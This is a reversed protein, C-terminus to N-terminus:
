ESIEFLERIDDWTLHNAPDGHDQMIAAFMAKKRNQLKILKEEVTGVTVLKYVLVQKQQGIRHVRDTAQDEAMPNWWPDTHIVIDAATLNIGVGGAKLSILFVPIEPTNNFCNIREMRDSTSGDLYVYNIRSEALQARILKLMRVFQSFVVIKHGGGIAENIIEMLDDIKGSDAEPGIDPIALSPHDCLQRLKTLASLVNFRSKELGVNAVSNIIDQKVQKLITRYVDEQLQSMLVNHVTIIKPPLEPLVAVKERRLIFPTIKKKLVALSTQCGSKKLPEVYTATFQEQGELYGPMLFDFLSWLDELRNEVPTGTLVLRFAAKIKKCERARQTQRNKIHHAEDLICYHFSYDQLSDIDNVIIDYTTIIMAQDHFSSRFNKRSDPTGHYILYATGPYFKEIEAAWNYLLSRPCVILSPGQQPLSKLLTLVQITKGLGMDDALIGGFRYKHLFHLWHYGERQYPRLEGQLNEPLPCAEVPSASCIDATFQNYISNGQVVIGHEQLLQQLFILNYSLRRGTGSEGAISAFANEMLDMKSSEGVFFWQGGAQIFNGDATRRLMSMIQQHTYTAGGLNYYIEFDFWDISDEVAIDIYPELKLPTIKFETFGSDTTVRWEEPLQGIGNLMFKLLSGQEQIVWEGTSFEFKNKQMFHLLEKLPQRNVTLWHRPDTVSREYASEGDLLERCNQGQYTQGALKVTPQCSLRNLNQQYSFRLNIEPQELILQHAQFDPALELRMNQALRPLIEFLVEGLQEPAIIIQPPLKELGSTDILHITDQYFTYNLQQNFFGSAEFESMDGSFELRSENGGVYVRPKFTAGLQLPRSGNHSVARNNQILSVIFQLNESSKTLFVSALRVDKGTFHNELFCLALHDFGSLANFLQTRKQASHNIDGLCAVLQGAFVEERGPCSLIIQFHEAQTDLGDIIYSLETRESAAAALKLQAIGEAPVPKMAGPNLKPLDDSIFKYIVATIHECFGDGSFNCTCFHDTKLQGNVFELSLNVGCAGAAKVIAKIQYRSGQVTFSYPKINGSQYHSLAKEFIVEGADTKLKELLM